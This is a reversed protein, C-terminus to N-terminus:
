GGKWKEIKEFIRKDYGPDSIDFWIVFPEKKFWTLQRRIYGHHDFKIRKIAEEKSIKKDLYASVQRYGISTMSPLTQKYKKLLSSVEAVFGQEFWLDIRDDARKYLYERGATLGLSLIEFDPKYKKALSSIPKGTKYYVELARIVRRKNHKDIGLYTKPDVQELDHLLSSLLQKDLKDRIKQDPKVQPVKLGQVVARIYLGTGGVLIPLKGKNQIQKIKKYAIQQYEAVSFTKDPTIIDYLYIPIGDVIWYSNFKEQNIVPHDKNVQFSKGTGIDMGVYLQRSDASIIEGDFKKALKIALDTKGTGTPGGIVLLKKM